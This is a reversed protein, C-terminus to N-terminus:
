RVNRIQSHQARHAPVGAMRRPENHPRARAQNVRYVSHPEHRGMRRRAHSAHIHSAASSRHAATVTAATATTSPAAEIDAMASQQGSKWVHVLAVPISGYNRTPDNKAVPPGNATERVPADYRSPDKAVPPQGSVSSEDGREALSVSKAITTQSVPQLSRSGPAEPSYDGLVMVGAAM